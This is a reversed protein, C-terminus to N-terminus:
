FTQYPVCPFLTVFSLSQFLFLSNVINGNVRNINDVLWMIEDDAANRARGGNHLQVRLFVIVYVVDYVYMYM